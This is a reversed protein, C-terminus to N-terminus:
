KKHDTDISAHLMLFHRTLGFPTYKYIHNLANPHIGNFIDRMTRYMCTYDANTADGQTKQHSVLFQKEGLRCLKIQKYYFDM